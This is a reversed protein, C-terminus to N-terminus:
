FAFREDKNNTEWVEQNNRHIKDEVHVPGMSKKLNVTLGTLTKM